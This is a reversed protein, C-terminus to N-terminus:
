SGEWRRVTMTDQIPEEVVHTVHVNKYGASMLLDREATAEAETGYERYGAYGDIPDYVALRWCERAQWVKAQWKAMWDGERRM